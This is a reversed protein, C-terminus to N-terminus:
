RKAFSHAKMARPLGSYLYPLNITKYIRSFTM